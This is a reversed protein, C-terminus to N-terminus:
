AASYMPDSFRDIGCRLQQSCMFTRSSASLSLSRPLNLFPKLRKPFSRVTPECEADPDAVLIIHLTTDGRRKEAAASHRKVRTTNKQGTTSRIGEASSYKTAEQSPGARWNSHEKHLKRTYTPKVQAYHVLRYCAQVLFCPVLTPLCSPTILLSAFSRAPVPQIATFITCPDGPSPAALAFSVALPSTAISQLLLSFSPCSVLVVRQLKEM